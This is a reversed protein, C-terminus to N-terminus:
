KTLEISPPVKIIANKNEDYNINLTASGTINMTFCMVQSNLGLSTGSGQLTCHASPAWISGTYQSGSNGNIKVTSTNGPPLFILLNRLDEPTNEDSMAYLDVHAGGNFTVGGNTVKILVGETYKDHVGNDNVDSTITWQAGLNFDANDICYVGKQLILKGAPSADPFDKNNSPFSGPTAMYVLPNSSIQTISGATDCSPNPWVIPPPCSYPTGCNNTPPPDVQGPVYKSTGVVCIGYESELESSGVQTFAENCSSNVFIGSGGVVNLANGGVNFPDHPWNHAGKCGCMLSVMANGFMSPDVTAPKAKAVSNVRNTLQPIGVIRGFTTNITSTIKVQLYEDEKGPEIGECTAAPEECGYVEVNVFDSETGITSDLDTYGNEAALITGAMKWPENRIKARAAAFAATDAANQAQRRDSYAMGGDVTLGTMAILGVIAFVILILAQGRETKKIPPSKKM